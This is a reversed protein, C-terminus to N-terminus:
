FLKNFDLEKTLLKGVPLGDRFTRTSITVSTDFVLEEDYIPSAGTVKGDIAYRIEVNPFETMLKIAIEKRASDAKLSYDVNFASGAYNIGAYAYRNFQVQVRKSFDTWDRLEKKTWVAESLAALRPYIMFESTQKNQVFEAWLNAQGGLVHRKQATSMSDIIPDFQYVRSLPMYNGYALPEQEPSGQYYDFYTHSAPAVIVDYGQKTAEWVEGMGKYIMPVVGGPTESREKWVVMKRGHNKVVIQEIRSMFYTELEELSALNEDQMRAQCHPCTKWSANSVEDGGAHIYESPFLDVVENLVNGMFEYTSEKGPCLNNNFPPRAGGNPLLVQEGSCSLFPYAVVASTIHGPMEIEPIVEIGRTQAYAILERIENQSYYGGYNPQQGPQAPLQDNWNLELNEVRYAGDQTLRPYKKVELRWGQDDIFHFHFKNLKHFAMEDIVEKIYDMTFFHRSVDLMLGRYSFRPGDEIDIAPLIWQTTHVAKSRSRIQPPLLQLLSQVGYLYGNYDSAWITITNRSVALRYHEPSLTPDPVFHLYNSAPPVSSLQLELGAALHLPRTFFGALQKTEEGPAVVVTNENITFSGSGLAIHQPKPVINIDALTFGPHEDAQSSLPLFLTYLAYFLTCWTFKKM